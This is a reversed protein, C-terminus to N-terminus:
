APPLVLRPDMVFDKLQALTPLPAKTAVTTNNRFVADVIVFVYTGDPRNWHVERHTASDVVEAKQGNASRHHHM